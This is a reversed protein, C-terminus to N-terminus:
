RERGGERGEDRGGRWGDRGGEGERGQTRGGDRGGERGGERRGDMAGKRVCSNAGQHDRDQQQVRFARGAKLDPLLLERAHHVVVRLLLAVQVELLLDVVLLGDELGSGDGDRAKGPADRRTADTDVLLAHTHAHTRTHTTDYTHQLTATQSHRHM